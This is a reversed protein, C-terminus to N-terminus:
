RKYAAATIVQGRTNDSLVPAITLATTASTIQWSLHLRPNGSGSGTGTTAILATFGAPPTVTELNGPSQVGVFCLVFEEAQALTATSFSQNGSGNVGASQFDLSPTAGFDVYFVNVNMRLSSSSTVTIASAAATRLTPNEVRFIQGRISVAGAPDILPDATYTNGWIDAVSFTASDFSQVVVFLTVGAPIDVTTTVAQALVAVGASTASGAVVPSAIPDVPPALSGSLAAAILAAALM